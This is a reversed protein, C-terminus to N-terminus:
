LRAASNGSMPHKSIRRRIPTRGNPPIEPPGPPSSPVDAFALPAALLLAIVATLIRLTKM